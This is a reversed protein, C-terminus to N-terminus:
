HQESTHSPFSFQCDSSTTWHIVYIYEISANLVFQLCAICRSVISRGAIHIRVYTLSTSTFMSSYLHIWPYLSVCQFFVNHSCTCRISFSTCGFIGMCNRHIVMQTRSHPRHFLYINYMPRCTCHACWKTTEYNWANQLVWNQRNCTNRTHLQIRRVTALANQRQRQVVVNM